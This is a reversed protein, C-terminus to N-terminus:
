RQVAEKVQSGFTMVENYTVPAFSGDRIERAVKMLDQAVDVTMSAEPRAAAQKEMQSQTVTSRVANMVEHVNPLRKM